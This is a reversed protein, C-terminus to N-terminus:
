ECSKNNKGVINHTEIDNKSQGVWKVYIHNTSCRSHEDNDHGGITNEWHHKRVHVSKRKHRKSWMATRHVCIRIVRPGM